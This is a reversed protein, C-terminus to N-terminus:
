RGSSESDAMNTLLSQAQLVAQRGDCATADAGVQAVLEPHQLFLPGGVMVAIARNCSNDRIARIVAQASDLWRECSVSLGAVAFWERRVLRGLDRQSAAPPTWVAWGGRRFFDSVMALGFSHQDGPAPALLARRGHVYGVAEDRFAPGIEHMIHLLRLLGVTVATFDAGDEEWLAGLWRAAPALLNLYLAELTAGRACRGEVYARAFAVDRSLVLGAFEEVEEQTIVCAGPLAPRQLDAGHAQLLQPIVEQEVLRTLM